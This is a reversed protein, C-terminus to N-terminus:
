SLTHFINLTLLLFVLVVSNNVKLLYIGVPYNRHLDCYNQKTTNMKPNKEPGALTQNVLNEAWFHNLEKDSGSPFVMPFTVLNTNKYSKYSNNHNKSKNLLLFKSSSRKWTSLYKARNISFRSHIKWIYRSITSNRLM